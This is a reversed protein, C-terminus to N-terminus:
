RRFAVVRRVMVFRRVVRYVRHSINVFRNEFRRSRQFCVAHPLPARASPWRTERPETIHVLCDGRIRDARHLNPASHFHILRKESWSGGNISVMNLQRLNRLGTATFFLVSSAVEWGGQSRAPTESRLKGPRVISPLEV